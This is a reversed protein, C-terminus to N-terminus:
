RLGSSDSILIKDKNLHKTRCCKQNRKELLIRYVENMLDLPDCARDLVYEYIDRNKVEEKAILFDDIIRQRIEMLIEIRSMNELPKRGQLKRLERDFKTSIRKKSKPEKPRPILYGGTVVDRLQTAIRISKEGESDKVLLYKPDEPRGKNATKYPEFRDVPGLVVLKEDGGAFAEFPYSRHSLKYKAADAIKKYEAREEESYQPITNAQIYRKLIRGVDQKSFLSGQPPFISFPQNNQINM